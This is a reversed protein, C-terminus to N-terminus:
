NKEHATWKKLSKWLDRRKRLDEKKGTQEFVMPNVMYVRENVKRIIDLSLWKGILMEAKRRQIGYHGMLVNRLLGYIQNTKTSGYFILSTFLLGVNVDKDDELNKLEIRFIGGM